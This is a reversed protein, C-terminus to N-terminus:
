FYIAKDKTRKDSIKKLAVDSKMVIFGPQHLEINKIILLFYLKFHGPKQILHTGRACLTFTLVEEQIMGSLDPQTEINRYM